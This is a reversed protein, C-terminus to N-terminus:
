PAAALDERVREERLGARARDDHLAGRVGDVGLAAACAVRDTDLQHVPGVFPPVAPRRRVVNVLDRAPLRIANAMQIAHAVFRLRRTWNFRGNRRVDDVCTSGLRQNTRWIGLAWATRRGYSSTTSLILAPSVAQTNAEAARTMIM